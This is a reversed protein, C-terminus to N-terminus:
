SPKFLMILDADIWLWYDSRTQCIIEIYGFLKHEGEGPENSETFIIKDVGYKEDELFDDISKNLKDLILEPLVAAKNWEKEGLM